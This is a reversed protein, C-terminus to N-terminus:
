YFKLVKKYGGRFSIQLGVLTRTRKEYLFKWTAHRIDYGEPLFSQVIAPLDALELDRAITNRLYSRILVKVSQEYSEVSEDYEDEDPVFPAHGCQELFAVMQDTSALAIIWRCNTIDYRESEGVVFVPLADASLPRWNIRPICELEDEPTPFDQIGWEGPTTTHYDDVMPGPRWWLMQVQDQPVGVGAKYAALGTARLLGTMGIDFSALFIELARAPDKEVERRVNWPQAPHSGPLPCTVSEDLVLVTPLDVKRVVQRPGLLDSEGGEESLADDSSDFVYDKPLPKWRRIIAFPCEQEARQRNIAYLREVFEVEPLDQECVWDFIRDEVWQYLTRLAEDDILGARTPARPNVPHGARVHLYAHWGVRTSDLVLQGYWNVALSSWTTDLHTTPAPFLSIRIESGQYTDIIQPDKITIATPLSTDLGEGDAVVELLDGYGCAPSMASGIWRGDIGYVKDRERHAPTDLLCTRIEEILSETGTITVRFGTAGEQCDCWDVNERWADRYATDDLWRRTDIEFVLMSGDPPSYSEIRLQAVRENAILAYFGMGLPRQHAEVLPNAFGSDSFVLLTRLGEVGEVLGHGDDHIVCTCSLPFTVWVHRALGRQANQILESLFEWPKGTFLRQVGSRFFRDENIMSTTTQTM